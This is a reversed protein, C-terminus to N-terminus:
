IITNIRENIYIHFSTYIYIYIYIFPQGSDYLYVCTYIYIYIFPHGSGYIIYLYECTYICSIKPLSIVLCVTM